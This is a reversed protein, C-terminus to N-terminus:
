PQLTASVDDACGTRGRSVTGAGVADYIARSLDAFAAEQFDSDSMYRTVLAGNEGMREIMLRGVAELTRPLGSRRIISMLAGMRLERHDPVPVTTTDGSEARQM